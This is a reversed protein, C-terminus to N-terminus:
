ACLLRMDRASTHSKAEGGSKQNVCSTKQKRVLSEHVVQWTRGLETQKVGVFVLVFVAIRQTKRSAVPDVQVVVDLQDQLVM